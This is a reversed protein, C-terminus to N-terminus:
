LVRPVKQCFIFPTTRSQPHKNYISFVICVKSVPELLESHCASRRQELSLYSVRFVGQTPRHNGSNRRLITRAHLKQFPRKKSNM